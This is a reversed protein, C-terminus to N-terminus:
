YPRITSTLLGGQPRSTLVDELGEM